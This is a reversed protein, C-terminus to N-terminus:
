GRRAGEGVVPGAGLAAAVRAGLAEGQATCDNIGIGRYANGGLFVGLAGARGELEALRRGHGVVYQPIARPWRVIRAFSPRARIGLTLALEEAVVGLLAEDDLGVLEPNRAGGVIQTLLVRGEPARRAFISSSWLSGLIRRGESTPVLFGFGDLPHAVEARSFGLCVVAAPVYPIAYLLEACRPDHPGLLAAADYAPAALVLADAAVADGGSTRVVWRAGDRELAEAATAPRLDHEGLSAALRRVLDATGEEFSWLVGGPGASQPGQAGVAKAMKQMALMGKLLGGFQREIQAVKPFSSELSMTRPDGAYIGASMPDILRDLAEDGLRRRVFAAVSEDEDPDGVPLLFEAALRLKGRISLIDSGLFSLPDEPLRKLEGDAFVFRKRAGDESKLLRDTAGLRGVLALTSPKNDLFGNPGEECLFGDERTSRIKGGLAPDAELLTLQAGPVRDLVARAASLGSLGGGIVVVRM